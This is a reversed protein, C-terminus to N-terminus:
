EVFRTIRALHGLMEAGVVVLQSELGRHQEVEDRLEREQEVLREAVGGDDGRVQQRREGSAVDLDRQASVTAVLQKRAIGGHLRVAERAVVVAGWSQEAPTEDLGDHAPEGHRAVVQAEVEAGLPKDAAGRM